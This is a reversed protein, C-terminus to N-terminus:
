ELDGPRRSRVTPSSHFRDDIRPCDIFEQISKNQQDSLKYEYISWCAHMETTNNDSYTAAVFQDPSLSFRVHLEFDFSGHSSRCELYLVFRHREHDKMVTKRYKRSSRPDCFNVETPICQKPLLLAYYSLEGRHTVIGRWGIKLEYIGNICNFATKSLRRVRCEAFQRKFQIEHRPDLFHFPGERPADYVNPFAITIQNDGHSYMRLTSLDGNIELQEIIVAAVDM